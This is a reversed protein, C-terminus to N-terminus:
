NKKLDYKRSVEINDSFSITAFLDFVPYLGLPPTVSYATRFNLLSINWQFSAITCGRGRRSWKLGEGSM